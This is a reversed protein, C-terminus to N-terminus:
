AKDWAPRSSSSSRPVDGIRVALERLCEPLPEQTVPQMAHRLGAGLTKLDIPEERSM